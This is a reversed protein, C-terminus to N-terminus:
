KDGRIRQIISLAEDIAENTDECCKCYLNDMDHVEKLPKEIEDLLKRERVKLVDALAVIDEGSEDWVGVIEDISIIQSM